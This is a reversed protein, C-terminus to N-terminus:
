RLQVKTFLSGDAIFLNKIHSDEGVRKDCFAQPGRGNHRAWLTFAKGSPPYQRVERM